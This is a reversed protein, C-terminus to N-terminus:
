PSTTSGAKQRIARHSRSCDAARHTYALYQDDTGVHVSHGGDKAPGQWRIHWGFLRQMWVATAATDSVTLNAHELQATM